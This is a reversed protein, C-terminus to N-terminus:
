VVNWMCCEVYLMSYLHDPEDQRWPGSVTPLPGDVEFTEPWDFSLGLQIRVIAPADPDQHPPHGMRVM